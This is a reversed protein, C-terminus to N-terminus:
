ESENFGPVKLEMTQRLVAESVQAPDMGDIMSPIVPERYFAYWIATLACLKVVLLLVIETTLPKEKRPVAIM